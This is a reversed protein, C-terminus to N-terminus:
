VEYSLGTEDRLREVARAREHWVAGMQEHTERYIDYWEDYIRVYRERPEWVREYTTMERVTSALDDIEGTGAGALLAVGRAGFEEGTPVAVEADICDAFLQCWLESRAGGGSMRIRSADTEIHEYCDRM